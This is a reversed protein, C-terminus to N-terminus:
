CLSSTHWCLLSHGETSKTSQYLSSVLPRVPSRVPFATSFRDMVKRAYHKQECLGSTNIGCRRGKVSKREPPPPYHKFKIKDTSISPSNRFPSWLTLSM